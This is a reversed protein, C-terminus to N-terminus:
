QSLSAATSGVLKWGIRFEDRCALWLVLTVLLYYILMRWVVQNTSWMSVGYSALSWAILGITRLWDKWGQGTLERLRWENVAWWIALAAVQGVAVAVLSRLWLALVLAVSFSVVLAGVTLFLFQRQRGYLSAFSMHLIQIGALFVVGVLLIGAVPLSTLYKPLFWQIFVELVFFYPLLLSWALLLFKSAHAYVRARGEHEVAAVHSFFVCYVAAIATVPVFMMSSALSYKAFDRIPLVLSVSIRDASQVLGLGGNSLAIPWGLVVCKKGLSWASDSTYHLRVPRVRTWLYVLVGVWSTCYLVILVRFSPTARLEWLSALLVFGATNAATALAVPKFRRAAQLSNQLVTAINITLAFLITAIAILKLRSPVFFAVILCAPSLLAVHQWFVFRISPGVEHHFEELPKGAWRLLAGDAFGFHLFGVYSTYLLFLRWYGFDEVSVLRPILFVLLVNFMASLGTGGSMTAVDRALASFRSSREVAVEGVGVTEIAEIQEPETKLPLKGDCRDEDHPAV